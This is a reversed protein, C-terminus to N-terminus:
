TDLWECVFIAYEKTFFLFGEGLTSTESPCIGVVGGGATPQMVPPLM